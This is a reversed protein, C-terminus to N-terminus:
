YAANFISEVYVFGTSKDVTGCFGYPSIYSDFMYPTYNGYFEYEAGNDKIDVLDYKFKSVNYSIPDSGYFSKIQSALKVSFLDWAERETYKATIESKEPSNDAQDASCGAFGVCVTALILLLCLAKKM